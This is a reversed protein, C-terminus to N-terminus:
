EPLGLERLLNAYREIIAPDKYQENRTIKEVTWEPDGKIIYAIEAKADQMRGVQAYACALYARSRSWTPRRKLLEEYVAIAEEYEELTYYARGLYMLYWPPFTPSMRMAQKIIPIAEKARGHTTLAWGFDAVAEANNPNSDFAKKRIIFAEDYENRRQHLVALLHLGWSHTEDATTVKKGISEVQAWAAEPDDVWEFRAQQFYVGGLAAWATWFEPDIALAQQYLEQAQALEQREFVSHLAWGRLFLEYAKASNTERRWLRAREGETLKVEMETAVQWTIDDQLAFIDDVTRDYEEVWVHHGSLADILQATIRVQEGSKQISGELVYRVGQEEAVQKVSVGKDKYTMASHRAIVFLAPIRALTTTIAETIGGVFYDQSPDGSLNDFPMVVLSPKDPLPYAFDAMSAIDVQRGPEYLYFLGLASFVVGVFAALWYYRSRQKQLTSLESAANPIKADLLKGIFRYGRRHVTEIYRPNKADDNLAKRLERIASAPATDNVVVDPWIAELLQERTVLQGSHVLLHQLVEFAKPTLHIEEEGCWLSANPADLRFKDFHFEISM